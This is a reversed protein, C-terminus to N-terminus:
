CVAEALTPESDEEAATRGVIVVPVGAQHLLHRAVSGLPIRRKPSSLVILRAGFEAVADLITSAVHGVDAERVQGCASVGASRLRAAIGDVTHQGDAGGHETMMPMLRGISFERVHLVVVQDALGRALDGAMEVAASLYGAPERPGVDVALLISSKGNTAGTM